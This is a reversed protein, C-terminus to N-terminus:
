KNGGNDKEGESKTITVDSKVNITRYMNEYQEIAKELMLKTLKAQEPSMIVDCLLETNDDEKYKMKLNFDVSTMKLEVSNSYVRKFDEAKSEM